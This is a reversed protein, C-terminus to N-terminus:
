GHGAGRAQIRGVWQRALGSARAVDAQTAGLALAARVDGHLSERAARYAALRAMAAALDAPAARPPRAMDELVAWELLASIVEDRTSPGPGDPDPVLDARARLRDVDAVVRSPLWM